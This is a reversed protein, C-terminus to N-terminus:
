EEMDEVYYAYAGAIATVRYPGEWNPALKGASADLASGVAKQLVLDGTGSERKKM